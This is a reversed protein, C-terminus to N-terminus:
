KLEQKVEGCTLMDNGYYPNRIESESAMWYAGNGQNAMPCYQIFISGTQIDAAKFLTLIDSNLTIFRERQIGIDTTEAIQRAIKATNECGEINKLTAIMEEGAKGAKSSDSAVLANKLTLYQHYLVNKNEDKLKVSPGVTRTVTASDKDSSASKNAQNCATAIFASWILVIIKKM